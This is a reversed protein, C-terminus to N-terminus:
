KPVDLLPKADTGFATLVVTSSATTRKVLGGDESGAYVPPVDKHWLTVERTLRGELDESRVSIRKCKLEKGAVTVAEEDVERTSEKAGSPTSADQELTQPEVTSKVGNKAIEGYWAKRVVGEPSVLRASVVRSDNEEIVEVWLSDGAAAVAAVTFTREGEKYTAWQGPRLKTIDGFPHRDSVKPAVVRPRTMEEPVKEIRSAHGGCGSACGTLLLFPLFRM